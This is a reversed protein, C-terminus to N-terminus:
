QTEMAENYLSVLSTHLVDRDVDEIQLQEVYQTFITLTDQAGDIINQPDEVDLNLHDDVVIVDIAGSDELRNIFTDFLYPNTKNKVIVKVICDTYNKKRFKLVDRKDSDDYLIKKFIEFPNEVFSLSHSNTDFIHFGRKDSFDAWTHQACAGLYNINGVTSKHHYHGTCVLSFKSFMSRDFGGHYVIGRHVEFGNLELHGFCVQAKTSDIKDLTQQKNADCIWPVFLIKTKDFTVETPNIYYTFNKRGKFLIDISNVDNTDRYYTVHNGIINHYDIKHEELKSFFMDNAAKLTKFNIYKRRDFTDGLDVVTHIKHTRLYPFFVENFFREFYEIFKQHDNRVGFHIDTILALKM